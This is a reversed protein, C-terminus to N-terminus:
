INSAMAGYYQSKLPHPSGSNSHNLEYRATFVDRKYCGILSHQIPFYSSKSIVNTYFM